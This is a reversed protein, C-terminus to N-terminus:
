LFTMAAQVKCEIQVSGNTVSILQHNALDQEEEPWDNEM